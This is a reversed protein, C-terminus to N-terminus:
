LKTQRVRNQMAASLQFRGGRHPNSSPESCREGKTRGRRVSLFQKTVLEFLFLSVCAGGRAASSAAGPAASCDASSRRRPSAPSTLLGAMCKRQPLCGGMQPSCVCSAHREPLLPEGAAPATAAAGRAPTRQQLQRRRRASLNAGFASQGGVDRRRAQCTQKAQEQKDAGAGEWDRSHTRQVRVRTGVQQYRVGTGGAASLLLSRGTFIVARKKKRKVTRKRTRQLDAAPPRARWLKPNSRPPEM